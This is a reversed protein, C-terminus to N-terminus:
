DSVNGVNGGIKLSNEVHIKEAYLKYRDVTLNMRPTYYRIDDFRVKKRRFTWQIDNSEDLKIIYTGRPRGSEDFLGSIATYVYTTDGAKIPVGQYKIKMMVDFMSEIEWWRDPNETSDVPNLTTMKEWEYERAAAKFRDQLQRLTLGNPLIGENFANELPDVLPPNVLIHLEQADYDTTIDTENEYIRIAPEFTTVYLDENSHNILTFKVYHKAGISTDQQSLHVTVKKGPHLCGLLFTNILLLFIKKM